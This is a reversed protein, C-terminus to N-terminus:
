QRFKPNYEVNKITAGETNKEGIRKTKIGNYQYYCWLYVWIDKLPLDWFLKEAQDANGNSLAFCIM